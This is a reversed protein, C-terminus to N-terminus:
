GHLFGRMLLSQFVAEGPQTTLAELVEAKRFLPGSVELPEITSGSSGAECRFLGLDMEPIADRLGLIADVFIPSHTTVIVQRHTALETLLRAIWDIQQPAVGNEPEELAVLSGAWPNVAIACLALVRLTGESVVRISVAAGAQRIWLEATGRSPHLTLELGEVNPVAAQLTRCVADFYKPRDGRLRHLFSVLAEGHIGIDSVAARAQEKRMEMRPELYYTRWNALEDRVHDLHAYGNRSLSRDSLVTHNLGIREERPRSGSGRKRIRLIDGESEIPPAPRRKPRNSQNLEALYEDAVALEGSEYHIRPAVRYRWARGDADFDGELSFQGFERGMQAEIGAADMSFAEFAYGRVPFPLALADHLTRANGLWSLVQLAELFNSKGSANPGFLVALRPLEVDVDRLSKFGQVAFRKLM